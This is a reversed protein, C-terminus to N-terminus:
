MHWTQVGSSQKVVEFFMRMIFVDLWDPSRGIHEKIKEKPLIRLKGDKDNDYTKLMSLEQNIMEIEKDPLDCAIHIKNAFEALKYGCESKLNQYNSNVAKSNNVFGKCRLGDVVGGGVGDEDCVIDSLQINDKIRLANIANKIQETSSINFIIYETLIFGEWVTIIARDSGFRAIDAIIRKKGKEAYINSFMNNITDFDIMTNPDSDYEWNGLKLREKENQPLRDLAKLYDETLYKNDTPLSQIFKRYEPLTGNKQPLYFNNYAYGKNPNCTMLIKRKLNYDTNKWRGVSVALNTIALSNIQGIEEFWGRTFQLSGFRHYEPDSPLYKCDIYFVKSKNYLEFYNNQGNFTVYDEYQLGMFSFVEIISPTTYKTLDNLNQRAIFYHTGPYILADSFILASGTFSKTGGKAGGFLIEETTDDCWYEAAIIQKPQLKLVPIM